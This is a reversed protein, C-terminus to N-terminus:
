LHHPACSQCDLWPEVPLQPLADPSVGREFVPKFLTQGVGYTARCCHCSTEESLEVATFGSVVWGSHGSQAALAEVASRITLSKNGGFLELSLSDLLEATADDVTFNLRKM